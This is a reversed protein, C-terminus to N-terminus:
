PFWTIWKLPSPKIAIMSNIEITFSKHCDRSKIWDDLNLPFWTLWKLPSPKIAIMSNIEIISPIKVSVNNMETISSIRISVHNMEVAVYVIAVLAIFCRSINWKVTFHLFDESQSSHFYLKSLLFFTTQTTCCQSMNVIDYLYDNVNRTTNHLPTALESTQEHWTFM